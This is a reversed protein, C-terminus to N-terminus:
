PPVPVEVAGVGTGAKLPFSRDELKVGSKLLTEAAAIADDAIHFLEVFQAVTNM